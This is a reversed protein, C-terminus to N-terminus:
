KDIYNARFYIRLLSISDLSLLFAPVFTTVFTLLPLTAPLCRRRRDFNLRFRILAKRPGIGSHRPFSSVDLDRAVRM